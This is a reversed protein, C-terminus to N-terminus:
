LTQHIFCIEVEIVNKLKSFYLVAGYDKFVFFPHIMKGYPTTDNLLYFSYRGQFTFKYFYVPLRSYTAFLRAARYM